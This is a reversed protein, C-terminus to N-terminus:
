ATILLCCNWCAAAPLAPPLTLLLLCWCAGVLVLSCWCSLDSDGFGCVRMPWCCCVAPLLCFCWIATGRTKHKTGRNQRRIRSQRRVRNQREAGTNDRTKDKQDQITRGHVTKDAQKTEQVHKTRRVRNQRGTKNQLAHYIWRLETDEIKNRRCPFLLRLM